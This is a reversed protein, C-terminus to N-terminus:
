AVGRRRTRPYFAHCMPEIIESDFTAVSAGPYASFPRVICRQLSRSGTVGSNGLRKVEPPIM